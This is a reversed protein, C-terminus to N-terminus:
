FDITLLPAYQQGQHSDADRLDGQTFPRPFSAKIALANDCHFYQVENPSLRYLAAVVERSIKGSNKVREYVEPDDFMIDLTIVFPGANKSRVLSALEALTSM